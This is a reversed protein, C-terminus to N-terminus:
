NPGKQEISCKMRMATLESVLECEFALFMYDNTNITELTVTCKEGVTASPIGNGQLVFMSNSHM